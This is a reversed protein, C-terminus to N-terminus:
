LTHTVNCMSTRHAMIMGLMLVLMTVVFSYTPVWTDVCPTFLHFSTIKKTVGCAKYPDSVTLSAVTELIAVLLLILIIVLPAAHTIVPFVLMKDTHNNFSKFFCNAFFTLYAFAFQCYLFTGWRARKQKNKEFPPGPSFLKQFKINSDDGKNDLIIGRPFNCCNPSWLGNLHQIYFTPNDVWTM